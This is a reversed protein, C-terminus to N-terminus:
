TSVFISEWGWLTQNMPRPHLGLSQMELLIDPPESSGCMLVVAGPCTPARSFWKFVASNWSSRISFIITFAKM